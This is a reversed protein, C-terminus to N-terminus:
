KLVSPGAKSFQVNDGLGLVRRAVGPAPTGWRSSERISLPQNREVLRAWAGLGPGMSPALSRM